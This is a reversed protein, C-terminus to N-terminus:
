PGPCSVGLGAVARRHHDHGRGGRVARDRQPQRYQGQVHGGVPSLRDDSRRPDTGDAVPAAIRSALEDFVADRLVDSGPGDGGDRLHVVVDDIVSRAVPTDVVSEVVADPAGAALEYMRGASRCRDAIMALRQLYHLRVRDKIYTSDGFPRSWALADEVIDTAPDVADAVLSESGDPLPHALPGAEDYIM